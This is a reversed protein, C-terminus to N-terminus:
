AQSPNPEFVAWRMACPRGESMSLLKLDDSLNHLEQIDPIRRQAQDILTISHTTSANNIMSTVTNPSTPVWEHLEVILIASRMEMFLEATLLDFEGGEIDILFVTKSLDCELDQLFNSQACGKITLKDQVGNEVANKLLFHRSREDMEFAISSKYSNNKLVGLAHFGEAAGIDVFFERGATSYGFILDVIESEYTGLFIAPRDLNCWLTHLLKLGQYRGYRVTFDLRISIDSALSSRIKTLESVREVGFLRRVKSESLQYMLVVSRLIGHSYVKKFISV